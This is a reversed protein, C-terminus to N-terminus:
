GQGNLEGWFGEMAIELLQRIREIDGKLYLWGMLSEVGTARHYESHSANKAGSGTKVNKGRRYVDAEEETLLPLLKESFESQSVASVIRGSIDHLSKVPRDGRELIRKRVYLSYVADGLFALSLPSYTNLRGEEM